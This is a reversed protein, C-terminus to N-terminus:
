QELCKTERRLNIQFWKGAEECLEKTRFGDIHEYSVQYVPYAYHDETPFKLPLHNTAVVILLWKM